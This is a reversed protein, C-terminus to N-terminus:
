HEQLFARGRAVMEVVHALDEGPFYLTADRYYPRIALGFQKGDSIIYSGIGLM